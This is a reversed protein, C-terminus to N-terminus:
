QIMIKLNAEKMSLPLKVSHRILCGSVDLSRELQSLSNFKGALFKIKIALFKDRAAWNVSANYKKEQSTPLNRYLWEKDNKYLWMYCSFSRKLENRTIEPTIRVAYLLAKRNLEKRKAMILHHRWQSLGQHSQIIQEVAGVSIAHHKAIDTRHRGIFAKRWIDREIDETLKKRRRSISLGHRLALQKVFSVSVDFQQSIKRMSIGRNLESLISAKPFSICKKIQESTTNAKSINISFFESPSKALYSMLFVHKLYHSSYRGHVLDSVYKFNSLELPVLIEINEFLNKWFIFMENTLSQMRVNGNPTLFGKVELWDNYFDSLKRNIQNHQLFHFLNSIFCSLHLAKESKTVKLPIGTEPLLYSRNVGGEGAILYSLPRHHKVCHSIGYLQHEILWSMKGYKEFSEDVCIPCYKYQKKLPLSAAAQRSCGTILQGRSSLLVKELNSARSELTFAYLLYGTAQYLLSKANLNFHNAIESIHNTLVPHLRIHASGFIDLNTQKSSRHCNGIHYNTILGYVSEGQTYQWYKSNTM